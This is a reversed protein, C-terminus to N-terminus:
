YFNELDKAYHGVIMANTAAESAFANLAVSNDFDHKATPNKIEVPSGFSFAVTLYKVLTM